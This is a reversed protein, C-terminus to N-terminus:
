ESVETDVIVRSVTIFDSLKAYMSGSLRAIPNLKEINIRGDKGIIDKHIHVMAVEGLILEAQNDGIKVTQNLICEIQVLTNAIRPTSIKTSPILSLQALEIESVHSPYEGAAISIAHALNMSCINVVFEKNLAINRYTDKYEGNLREISISVIPPKTSVINFYSFPAANVVGSTNHSTVFAIPRPVVISNLIHLPNECSEMDQSIFDASNYVISRLNHNM